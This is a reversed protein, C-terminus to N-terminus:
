NKTAVKKRRAAQKETLKPPAEKIWDLRETVVLGARKASEAQAFNATEAVKEGNAKSIVYVLKRM